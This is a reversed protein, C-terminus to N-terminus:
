LAGRRRAAAWAAAYTLGFALVARQERALEHAAEAIQLLCEHADSEAAGLEAWAATLALAHHLRLVGSVHDVLDDTTM